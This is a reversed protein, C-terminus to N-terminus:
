LKWLKTNCYKSIINMNKNLNILIKRYRAEDKFSLNPHIRNKFINKKINLLSHSKHNYTKKILEYTNDKLYNNNAQNIDERIFKFIHEIKMDYNEVFEEYSIISIRRYYKKYYKNFIKYHNIIESSFSNVTFSTNSKLLSAFISRPNRYVYIFLSNNWNKFIYDIYFTNETTKELWRKKFKKKSLLYNYFIDLFKKRSNLNILKKFFKEDKINYVKMLNLVHENLKFAKRGLKKKFDLAFWFTEPGSLINKHSSIRSRVLSTGSRRIGGIFIPNDIIKDSKVM